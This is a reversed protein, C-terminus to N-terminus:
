KYQFIHVHVYSYVYCVLKVKANIEESIEYSPINTKDIRTPRMSINIQAELNRPSM